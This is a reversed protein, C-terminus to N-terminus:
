NAKAKIGPKRMGHLLAEQADKKAKGRGASKNSGSQDFLAPMRAFGYKAKLALLSLLLGVQDSFFFRGGEKQCVVFRELLYAGIMHAFARGGDDARLGTAGAGINSWFVFHARRDPEMFLTSLLVSADSAQWVAQQSTNLVGDVDTIIVRDYRELYAPLYMYRAGACYGKMLDPSLDGLPQRDLTINIHVGYAKEMAEIRDEEPEFDVAHIHVLGGPNHISFSEVFGEAYMYFYVANCSILTCSKITKNRMGFTLSGTVACPSAALAELHKLSVINAGARFFQSRYAQGVKDSAFLSVADDMRKEVCAILGQYHPMHPSDAGLQALVLNYASYLDALHAPELNNQFIHTAILQYSVEMHFDCYLERQWPTLDPRELALATFKKVAARDREAYLVLMFEFLHSADFTAVSTLQRQYLNFSNREEESLGLLRAVLGTYIVLDHDTLDHHKAAARLNQLLKLRDEKKLRSKWAYYPVRFYSGIVDRREIARCTKSLALFGSFEAKESTLELLQDKLLDDLSKEERSFFGGLKHKVEKFM